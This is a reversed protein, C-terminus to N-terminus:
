VHTTKQCRMLAQLTTLVTTDLNVHMVFLAAPMPIIERVVRQQNM